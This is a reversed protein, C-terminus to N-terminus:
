PWGDQEPWGRSNSPLAARRRSVPPGVVSHARNSCSGATMFALATKCMPSYDAGRARSPIFVGETMWKCWGLAAIANVWNRNFTIAAEYEPIAEEPRGQARLVEGKAFHALANRPFAVLAQRVLQDARAIDDIASSSMGDLVRGARANACLCQAEVSRGDLVLAHELLEIAQV